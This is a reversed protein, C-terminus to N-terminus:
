WHPIANRWAHDPPLGVRADQALERFRPPLLVPADPEDVLLIDWRGEYSAFLCM